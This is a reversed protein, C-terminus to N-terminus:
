RAELRADSERTSQLQKAEDGNAPILEMRGEPPPAEPLNEARPGYNGDDASSHSSNGNAPWFRDRERLL